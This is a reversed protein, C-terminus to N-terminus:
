KACLSAMKYFYVVANLVLLEVALDYAPSCFKIQANVACYFNILNCYVVACMVASKLTKIRKQV